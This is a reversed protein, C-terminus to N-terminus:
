NENIGGAVWRSMVRDTRGRRKKLFHLEMQMADHCQHSFLSNNIACILSKLSCCYSSHEALMKPKNLQVLSNMLQPLVGNCTSSMLSGHPLVKLPLYLFFVAFHNVCNYNSSGQFSSIIKLKTWWKWVDFYKRDCRFRKMFIGWPPFCFLFIFLLLRFLCFRIAAHILFQTNFHHIPLITEKFQIRKAEEKGAERRSEIWLKKSSKNLFDKIPRFGKSRFSRVIANIM